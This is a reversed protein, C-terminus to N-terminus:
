FYKELNNKIKRERNDLLPQQHSKGRWYDYDKLMEQKFRLNQNLVNKTAPEVNLPKILEPKDKEKFSEYKKKMKQKITPASNVGYKDYDLYSPNYQNKIKNAIKQRQDLLQKLKDPHRRSVSTNAFEYLDNKKRLKTINAIEKLTKAGEKRSMRDHIKTAFNKVSNLVDQIGEGEKIKSNSHLQHSTRRKVAVM